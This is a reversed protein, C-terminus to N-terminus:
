ETQGSGSGSDTFGGLKGGGTDLSQYEVVPIGGGTDWWQYGTVPIGGGTDWWRYGVM